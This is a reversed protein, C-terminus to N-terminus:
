PGASHQKANELQCKRSHGPHKGRGAALEGSIGATHGKLRHLLKGSDVDWIAATGDSGGSALRRGPRDFRVSTVAGGGHADSLNHLLRYSADPLDEKPAYVGPLPPLRRGPQEAPPQAGQQTAQQQQQQQHQIGNAAASAPAGQQEPEM